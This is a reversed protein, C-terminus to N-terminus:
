IVIDKAGASSAAGLTITVWNAGQGTITAVVGGVTVNTIDGGDGLAGNTITISNGGAYPGINTSLAYVSASLGFSYNADPGNNVTYCTPTFAGAASATFVVPVNSATGPDVTLGALASVDFMAAGAGSNTATTIVLAESGSNTVTFVNTVVAGLAIHGFAAGSVAIGPGTFTFSMANIMSLDVINGAINANLLGEQQYARLLSRSHRLMSRGLPALMSLAPQLDQWGGLPPQGQEVLDRLGLQGFLSLVHEEVFRWQEPSSRRVEGLYRRLWQQEHAALTENQLLRERLGYFLECLDECFQVAGASPMFKLLDFAEVWNLQMPTATALLLGRARGYLVDRLEQYLKNFRPMQANNDPSQRRAKHAEDVLVLDTDALQALL